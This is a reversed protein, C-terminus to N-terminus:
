EMNEETYGGCAGYDANMEMEALRKKTICWWLRAACGSNCDRWPKSRLMLHM